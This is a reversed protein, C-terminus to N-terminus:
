QYDTGTHLKEKGDLDGRRAPKTKRVNYSTCNKPPVDSKLLDRESVLKYGINKLNLEKKPQLLIIDITYPESIRKGVCKCLSSSFNQFNRDGVQTYRYGITAITDNGRNDEVVIYRSSGSKNSAKFIFIFETITQFSCQCSNISTTTTTLIITAVAAKTTISILKSMVMQSTSWDHTIEFRQQFQPPSFTITSRQGAGWFPTWNHHQYFPVVFPSCSTLLLRNDLVASQFCLLSYGYDVSGIIVNIM